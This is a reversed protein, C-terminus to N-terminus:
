TAAEEQVSLLWVFVPLSVFVSVPVAIWWAAAEGLSQAFWYALGLVVTQVALGVILSAISGVKLRVGCHPCTLKSEFLVLRGPLPKSCKPCTHAM